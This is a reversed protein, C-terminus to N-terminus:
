IINNQRTTHKLLVSKYNQVTHPAHWMPLSSREGYRSIRIGFFCFSIFDCFYYCYCVRRTKTIMEIVNSDFGMESPQHWSPPPDSRYRWAREWREYRYLYKYRNKLLQLYGIWRTHEPFGGVWGGGCRYLLRYYNDKATKMKWVDDAPCIIDSRYWPQSEFTTCLVAITHRLSSIMEYENYLSIWWVYEVMLWKRRINFENM